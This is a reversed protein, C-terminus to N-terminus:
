DIAREDCRHAWWYDSMVAIHDHSPIRDATGPQEAATAALAATSTLHQQVYRRSHWGNGVMAPTDALPQWGDYLVQSSSSLQSPACALPPWSWLRPPWFNFAIDSHYSTIRSQRHAQSIRITVVVWSIKTASWALASASLLQQNHIPQGHRRVM